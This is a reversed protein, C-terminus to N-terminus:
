GLCEERTPEDDPAVEESFTLTGMLDYVHAHIYSAVDVMTGLEKDNASGDLVTSLELTAANEPVAILGTTTLDNEEAYDEGIFAASLVWKGEWATVQSDRDFTMVEEPDSALIAAPDALAICPLMLVVALLAIFKKM